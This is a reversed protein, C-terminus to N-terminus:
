SGKPKTIRRSAIRRAHEAESISQGTSPAGVAGILRQFRQRLQRYIAPRDEPRTM